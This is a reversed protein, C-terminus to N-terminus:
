GDSNRKISVAVVRTNTNGNWSATGCIGVTAGCEPTASAGANYGATTYSSANVPFTVVPVNVTSTTYPGVFPGGSGNPDAGAAEASEALRNVIVGNTVGPSNAKILAAAGAVAAAAASTGTITSYGGTTDTTLINEGPAAVFVDAGTNSFGSVTDLVSTSSVGVVGRDGAPYTPTTSADNGTAAVVVVNQSWAWDIASQLSASYGPNSFSMLIVDANHQVAYVVGSIVDSDLGLGQDNLVTVPMVKVGAYGVGAIGQNNDTAAAVIGAMQTGHGNVDTEGDGSGTLVNTGPVVKGALDPHSADVGT